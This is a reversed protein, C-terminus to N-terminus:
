KNAPSTRESYTAGFKDIGATDDEQCSFAVLVCLVAFVSKASRMFSVMFFYIDKM